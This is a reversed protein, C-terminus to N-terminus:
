QQKLGIFYSELLEGLKQGKNAFCVRVPTEGCLFCYPNKIQEMFDSVKDQASLDKRLSINTIDILEQEDLGTISQQSLQELQQRNLM